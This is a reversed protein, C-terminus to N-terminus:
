KGLSLLPRGRSIVLNTMLSVTSIIQPACNGLLKSVEATAADGATATAAEGSTQRGLSAAAGDLSNRVAGTSVAAEDLLPIVLGSSVQAVEAKAAVSLEREAREALEAAAAEAAAARQWLRMSHPQDASPPPPPQQRRSVATPSASLAPSGERAAPQPGATLEAGQEGGQGGAAADPLHAGIAPQAPGDSVGAQSTAAPAPCVGDVAATSVAPSSAVSRTSAQGGAPPPRSEAAGDASSLPTFLQKQVRQESHSQLEATHKHETPQPHPNATPGLASLMLAARQNWALASISSRLQQLEALEVGVAEGSQVPGRVM